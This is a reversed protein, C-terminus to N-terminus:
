QSVVAQRESVGWFWEGISRAADDAGLNYLTDDALGFCFQWQPVPQEIPSFGALPSNTAVNSACFITVGDTTQEYGSPDVDGPAAFHSFEVGPSFGSPQGFVAHVFRSGRRLTLDLAVPNRESATLLRITVSEPSNRLVTISHAAPLGQHSVGQQFEATEWPSWDDDSWMRFQLTLTDGVVPRVELIGNSLSWADPRNAIQRGVAVRLEPTEGVRLTAAADYYRAPDIYYDVTSKGFSSACVLVDGQEGSRTMEIYAGNRSTLGADIYTELASQAAEPLGYTPTPASWGTADQRKTGLLTLEILAAASGQVRELDCSFMVKGVAAQGPKGDVSAGTVRYYGNFAPYEDWVVPVFEEDPSDVYGLLQQRLALSQELDAYATGGELTISSGSSDASQVEGSALEIGFRGIQLKM